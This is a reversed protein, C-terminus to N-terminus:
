EFNDNIEKLYNIVEEFAKDMEEQSDFLTSNYETYGHVVVNQPVDTYNEGYWLELLEHSKNPCKLEYKDFKLRKTPLLLERKFPPFDEIFSADLGEAIYNTSEYSLGLKEFRENFEKEFSFDEQAYLGRFYYKHGLYNKTYYNISDEKVYDYPFIDLKVMPKLWGLQLFLSKGLGPSNFYDEHGLEKNYINNFDTFFNDNSNILRTLACNKKFYEYKNIEQPLVEIFKDYDKRMMLIDCDDDWPIFGEHRIAGLLTGYTLCYDLDYKECVNDIFRLLELYLLQIDRLTGEAQINSSKFLFNLLNNKSPAKKRKGIKRISKAFRISYLMLKESKQIKKPLKKYIKSLDM